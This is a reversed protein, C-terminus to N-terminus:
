DIRKSLETKPGHIVTLESLRAPDAGAFQVRLNIARSFFEGAAL